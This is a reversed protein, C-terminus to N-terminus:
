CQRAVETGRPTAYTNQVNSHGAAMNAGAGGGLGSVPVATSIETGEILFVRGRM